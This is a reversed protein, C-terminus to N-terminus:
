AGTWCGMITAAVNIADNERTDPPSGFQKPLDQV